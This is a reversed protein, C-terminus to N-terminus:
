EDNGCGPEFTPNLAYRAVEFPQFDVATLVRHLFESTSMAYQHWADDDARALVPYHGPREADILWRYEDPWETSGWPALGKGGACLDCVARPGLRKRVQRGPRDVARGAM